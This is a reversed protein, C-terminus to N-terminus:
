KYKAFYSAADKADLDTPGLEHAQASAKIDQDEQQPVAQQKGQADTALSDDTSIEKTSIEKNKLDQRPALGYDDDDDYARVYRKGQAQAKAAAAAQEQARASIVHHFKQELKKQDKIANYVVGVVFLFPVAISVVILWDM